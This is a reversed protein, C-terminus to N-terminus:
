AADPPPSPIKLYVTRCYHQELTFKQTNAQEKLENSCDADFFLTLDEILDDEETDDPSESLEIQDDCLDVQAGDLLQISIAVLAIFGFM